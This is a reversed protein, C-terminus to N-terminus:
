AARQRLHDIVEVLTAVDADSAGQLRLRTAWASLATVDEPTTEQDMARCMAMVAANALADQPMVDTSNYTADLEALYHEITQEITPKPLLSM